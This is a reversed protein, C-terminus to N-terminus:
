PLAYEVGEPTRWNTLSFPKEKFSYFVSRNGLVDNRAMAGWGSNEIANCGMGRGGAITVGILKEIQRRADNEESPIFSLPLATWGAKVSRGIRHVYEAFSRPLEDNVM